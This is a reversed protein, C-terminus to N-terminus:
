HLYAGPAPEITAVIFDGAIPLPRGDKIANNEGAADYLAKATESTLEGTVKRLLVDDPQVALNFESIIAKALALPSTAVPIEHLYRKGIVFVKISM